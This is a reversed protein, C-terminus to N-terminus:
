LRIDFNKRFNSRRKSEKYISYYNVLLYVICFILSVLGILNFIENYIM